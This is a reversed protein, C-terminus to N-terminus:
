SVEKLSTISLTPSGAGVDTITFVMEIRKGQDSTFIVTKQVNVVYGAFANNWDPDTSYDNNAPNGRDFIFSFNEGAAGTGPPPVTCELTSSDIALNAQYFGGGLDRMSVSRVCDDLKATSLASSSGNNILDALQGISSVEQGNYNLLPQRQNFPNNGSAVRVSKIRIIYRRKGLGAQVEDAFGGDLVSGAGLGPFLEMRDRALPVDHEQAISPLATFVLIALSGVTLIRQALSGIQFMRKVM